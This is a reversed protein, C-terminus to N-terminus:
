ATGTENRREPDPHLQRSKPDLEKLKRVEDMVIRTIEMFRERPNRSGIKASIDEFTLLKGFIIKVTAPNPLFRNKPLICSSGIYVPIVGASLKDVFYGFGPKGELIEGTTSRTGEPFIAINRNKIRESAERVTSPGFSQRNVPIMGLDKFVRGFFPLRLLEFKSIFSLPYPFASYLLPPDLNSFHNGALIFGKEPINEDLFTVDLRILFFFHLIRLWFRSIRWGADPVM